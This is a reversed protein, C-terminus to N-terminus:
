DAFDIEYCHGGAETRPENFAPRWYPVLPSPERELFDACFSVTSVDVREYEIGSRAIVENLNNATQTQYRCETEVDQYNSPDYDNTLGTISVPVSGTRQYVCEARDTLHIITNRTERDIRENRAKGPGGIAIFGAIVAGLSAIAAGGLLLAGLSPKSTM